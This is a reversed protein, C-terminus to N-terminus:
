DKELVAFPLPNAQQPDLEVYGYKEPGQVWGTINNTGDSYTDTQRDTEPPIWKPTNM